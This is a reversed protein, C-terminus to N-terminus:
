GKKKGQSEVKGERRNKVKKRQNRQGKNGGITWSKEM